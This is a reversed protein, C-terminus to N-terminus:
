ECTCITHKHMWAAGGLCVCVSEAELMTSACLTHTQMWAAGGVCVCSSETALMTPTCLSHADMWAAGGFCVCFSEADLVAAVVFEFSAVSGGSQGVEAIACPSQKLCPASPTHGSGPQVELTWTLPHHLFCSSRKLELYVHLM